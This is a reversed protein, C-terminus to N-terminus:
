IGPIRTWILVSGCNSTGRSRAYEPPVGAAGGYLEVGEVDGPPMEDITFGVALIGDVFFQPPCNARAMGTFRLSQRGNEGPILQAGPIMRMMDSLLLPHRAEIQARTIFHGVGQRRRAEFAELIRKNEGTHAVTIYGTMRQAVVTLTVEVNTTDDSAVETIVAIPEFSIRRFVLDVPGFPLLALFFHGLSDTRSSIAPKIAIVEVGAIPKGNDDKVVGALSGRHNQAVLTAPVLLLSLVARRLVLGARPASSRPHTAM